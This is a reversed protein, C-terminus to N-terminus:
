RGAFERVQKCLFRGDEYLKLELDLARAKHVDWTVRNCNGDFYDPSAECYATEVRRAIRLQLALQDETMVTTMLPPAGVIPQAYRTVVFSTPTGPLFAAIVSESVTGPDPNTVVNNGVQSSFSYGYIGGANLVRTVVVSNAAVVGAEAYRAVIALGMASTAHDLRAYSREEVARKNWLSAYAARMACGVTRPMVRRDGDDQIEIRCTGTDTALRDARYSDYLGAGDFGPIDEANASSRLKYSLVGPLADDLANRVEDLITDPIVASLFLAQVAEIREVREAVSLTGAKEGDVLEALADRLAANAPHEVVDVYYNVPVGVGAPALDYGLEFSPSGPSATTGLVDEHNLFGLHAAKSGYADSMALCDAADVPCMDRYSQAAFGLPIEMEVWPRDLREALKEAVIQDTSQEIVFDDIGVRLHIPQDIFPALADNSPSADRLVMNPTGREKSKLNIHSSADQVARTITGAVVTLDLPLEDFVPIDTASLANMDAPFMRLYGWAEGLQMPIYTLSGFVEDLTLNEIGLAEIAADVTTTTQQPGIAVFGVRAGPIQLFPQVAGVIDLVTEEAGVDQPYLQIGYLPPENDDLNYAQITGAVYEKSQTWYTADNFSSTTENFSPLVARALYYHFRAADPTDGNADRYNANMFYVTQDAPDRRDILFKVSRGLLLGGEGSFSLAEFAEESDIRPYTLHDEDPLESLASPDVATPQDAACAAALGLVLAAVATRGPQRRHTPTELIPRM